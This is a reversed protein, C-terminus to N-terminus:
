SDRGRQFSDMVFALGQKVLTRTASPEAKAPKKKVATMDCKKHEAKGEERPAAKTSNHKEKMKARAFGRGKKELQKRFGGKGGGRCRVLAFVSDYNDTNERLAILKDNEKVYLEFTEAAVDTYKSLAELIGTKTLEAVSLSLVKQVPLLTCSFSRQSEASM